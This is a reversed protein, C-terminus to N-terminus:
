HSTLLLMQGGSWPLCSKGPRLSMTFGVDLISPPVAALKTVMSSSAFYCAFFFLLFFAFCAAFFAAAAAAAASCPVLWCFSVFSKDCM